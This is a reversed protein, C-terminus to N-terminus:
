IQCVFRGSGNVNWALLLVCECADADFEEQDLLKKDAEKPSEKSVSSRDRVVEDIERSQPRVASPLSPVAPIDNLQTPGSIDAYRMSMRKKIKDNVRSKRAKLPTAPKTLRAPGRQGQKPPDAAKRTRLSQM